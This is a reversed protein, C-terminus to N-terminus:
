VECAAAWLKVESASLPLLCPHESFAHQLLMVETTALAALSDIIGSAVKGKLEHQEALTRVLAGSHLAM